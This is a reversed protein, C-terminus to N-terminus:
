KRRRDANQKIRTKIIKKVLTSPLPKDATFRITGGSADFPKLEKAFLRLIAKSAPFFSCHDQFAAFYCLVGLYKYAPMGYSIVEESEPAASKIAKRLRQLIARKDPPVSALYSDVDEAVSKKKGPASNAKKV